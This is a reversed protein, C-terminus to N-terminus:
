DEHDPSAAHYSVDIPHYPSMRLTDVKSIARRARRHADEPVLRGVRVMRVFRRRLDNTSSAVSQISPSTEEIPVPM